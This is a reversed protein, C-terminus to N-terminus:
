KFEKLDGVRIKQENTNREYRDVYRTFMKSKRDVSEENEIM